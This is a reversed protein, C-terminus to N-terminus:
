LSFKYGVTVLFLDSRQDKSGTKNVKSAGINYRADVVINQIEYSIGIPISIATSKTDDKIDKSNLKASTLFGLQVGAKLALGESVYYNAILPVNVYNLKYKDEAGGSYEFIWGQEAYNVGLAASFKSTLYYEGEVGFLFGTKGKAEGGGTWEGSVHGAGIGIKPQVTFSGTEHLTNQAGATLAVLGMILMMLTKKM